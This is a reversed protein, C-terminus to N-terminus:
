FPPPIRGSEVLLKMLEGVPLMAIANDVSGAGIREPFYIVIPLEDKKVYGRAQQAWETPRFDRPTKVEFVFGPTGLIDVKASGKRVNKPANRATPIFGALYDAFAAQLAHGRAATV